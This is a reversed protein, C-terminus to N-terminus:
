EVKWVETLFKVEPSEKTFEEIAKNAKEQSSYVGYNMHHMSDGLRYNKVPLVGIVVYVKEVEM